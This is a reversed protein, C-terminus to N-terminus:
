GRSIPPFGINARRIPRFKGRGQRVFPEDNQKGQGKRLGLVVLAAHAPGEEAAAFLPRIPREPFTKVAGRAPFHGGFLGHIEEAPQKRGGVAFRGLAQGVQAAGSKADQGTGPFVHKFKQALIRQGAPRFREEEVIPFRESGNTVQEGEAGEAIQRLVHALRIEGSFEMEQGKGSAQNKPACRRIQFQLVMQGQCHLDRQEVDAVPVFRGM